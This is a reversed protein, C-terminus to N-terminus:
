LSRKYKMEVLRPYMGETAFKEIHLAGDEAEFVSGRDGEKNNKGCPVKYPLIM